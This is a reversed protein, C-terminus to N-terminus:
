LYDCYTLQQQPQDVGALSISLKNYLDFYLQNQETPTLGALRGQESLLKMQDCAAIQYKLSNSSNGCAATFLATVLILLRM